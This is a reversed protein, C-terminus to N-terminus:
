LNQEPNSPRLVRVVTKSNETPQRPADGFRGAPRGGAAAEGKGCWDAPVSRCWRRWWHKTRPQERRRRRQQRRDGGEHRRGRHAGSGRTGRAQRRVPGAPTGRFPHIRVPAARPLADAMRRRRGIRPLRPPDRVVFGCLRLLIRGAGIPQVHLPQGDPQLSESGGVRFRRNGTGGAHRLRLGADQPGDPPPPLRPHEDGHDMGQQGHIWLLHLAGHGPVVTAGVPIARHVSGCVRLQLLVVGASLFVHQLGRIDQLAPPDSRLSGRRRRQPPPRGSPCCVVASVPEVSGDCRLRRQIGVLGSLKGKGVVRLLLLLAGNGM